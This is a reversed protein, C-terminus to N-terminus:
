KSTKRRRILAGALVLGGLALGYTSPEPVIGGNVYTIFPNGNLLVVDGFTFSNTLTQGYRYSYLTTSIPQSADYEISLSVILWSGNYYFGFPDGSGQNGSYSNLRNFNPTVTLDGAAYYHRLYNGASTIVGFSPSTDFSAGASLSMTSSFATAGLEEASLSGTVVARYYQGIQSWTITVGASASGPLMAAVALLLSSRVINLTMIGLLIPVGAM